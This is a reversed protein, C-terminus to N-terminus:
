QKGRRVWNGRVCLSHAPDVVETPKDLESLQRTRFLMQTLLLWAGVRREWRQGGSEQEAVGLKTFNLYFSSRRAQSAM